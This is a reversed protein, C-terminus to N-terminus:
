GAPGPRAGLIAESLIYGRAHALPPRTWESVSMAVTCIAVVAGATAGISGVRADRLQDM